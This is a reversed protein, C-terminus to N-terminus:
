RSKVLRIILQWLEDLGEGSQASVPVAATGFTEALTKLNRARESRSLKDIKTAVVHPEGGVDKLWKYAALDSALGPHRADILLLTARSKKVATAEDAEARLAGALGRRLRPAPPASTTLGADASGAGGRQGFSFYAEAVAQLEQASEPGGRAYGYGPLDVLYLERTGPGGGEVAVRYVNALRTKGPAASTRAIKRRCLANILTSKGVNSRGALAIQPVGDRPIGDAAKGQAQRFAGAAASTVFEASLVKM